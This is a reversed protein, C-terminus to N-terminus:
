KIKQQDFVGKAVTIANLAVPIGGYFAMQSFIEIIQERTVGVHLAGILHQRIQPERGLVCLAALTIMSRTKLDLAPRTYIEGFLTQTVIKMFEPALEGAASASSLTPDGFLKRRVEQGKEYLEETTAM